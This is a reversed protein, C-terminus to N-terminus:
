IQKQLKILKCVESYHYYMGDSGQVGKANNIIFDGIPPEIEEFEKEIVSCDISFFIVQKNEKYFILGIADSDPILNIGYLVMEGIPTMIKQLLNDKAEKITMIDKGM